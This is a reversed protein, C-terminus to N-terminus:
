VVMPTTLLLFPEGTISSSTNIPAPAFISPGILIPFPALIPALATTNHSTGSNEVATPMGALIFFTVFLIMFQCKERVWLVHYQKNTIGPFRITHNYVAKVINIIINEPICANRHLVNQLRSWLCFDSPNKRAQEVFGIRRYKRQKSM